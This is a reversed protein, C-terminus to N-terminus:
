LGSAYAAPRKGKDKRVGVTKNDGPPMRVEEEGEVEEVVVDDDLAERMM